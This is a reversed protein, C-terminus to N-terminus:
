VLYVRYVLYELIHYLKLFRTLLDPAQNLENLVDYVDFYQEYEKTMDFTLTNNLHTVNYTLEIPIPLSNSNNLHQFYIFPYHKNEDFVVGQRNIIFGININSSNICNLLDTIFVLNRSSYSIELYELILKVLLSNKNDSLDILTNTQFLVKSSFFG